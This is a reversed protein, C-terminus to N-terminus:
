LDFMIQFIVTRCFIPIKHNHKHKNVNDIGIKSLGRVVFIGRRRKASFM